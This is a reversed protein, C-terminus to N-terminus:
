FILSFFFFFLTSLLCDSIWGQCAPFPERIVSGMSIEQVLDFCYFVQEENESKAQQKMMQEMREADREGVANKLFESTFDKSNSESFYTSSAKASAQQFQKAEEALKLRNKIDASKAYLARLYEPVDKSKHRKRSVSSASARSIAKARTSASFAALSAALKAAAPTPSTTDQTPAVLTQTPMSIQQSLNEQSPSRTFSELADVMEEDESSTSKYRTTPSGPSTEVLVSAASAYPSSGFLNSNTMLNRSPTPTVNLNESVADRTRTPTLYTTISKQLPTSREKDSDDPIDGSSKLPTSILQPPMKPLKVSFNKYVRKTRHKDRPKNPSEHRLPIRPSVITRRRLTSPVGDGDNSASEMDHCSEELM